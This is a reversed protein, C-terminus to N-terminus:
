VVIRRLHVNHRKRPRAVNTTLFTGDLFLQRSVADVQGREIEGYLSTAKGLGYRTAAAVLFAQLVVFIQRWHANCFAPRNINGYLAQSFFEIPLLGIRLSGMREM